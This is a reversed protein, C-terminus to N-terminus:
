SATNDVTSIRNNGSLGCGTSDREERGGLARSPASDSPDGNKTVRKTVSSSFKTFRRAECSPKPLIGSPPIWSHVVTGAAPHSSPKPRGTKPTKGCTRSDELYPAYKRQSFRLDILSHLRFCGAQLTGDSDAADVADRCDPDYGCALTWVSGIEIVSGMQGFGNVPGQRKMM